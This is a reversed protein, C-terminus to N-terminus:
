IAFPFCSKEKLKRVQDLWSVSNLNRKIGLHNKLYSLFIKELQEPAEVPENKSFRWLDSLFPEEFSSEHHTFCSSCVCEGSDPLFEAPSRLFPQNCRSCRSLNLALGWHACLDFLWRSLLEPAPERNLATFANLLLEFERSLSIGHPTYRLFLEAMVQAIAQAELNERLAPFWEILSAEKAFVFESKGSSQFVAESYAMPDFAGKFPSEKRKGGKLLFSLIGFDASFAKVIFSSDSYPFRHLIIM